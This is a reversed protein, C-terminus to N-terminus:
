PSGCPPVDPYYDPVAVDAPDTVESVMAARVLALGAIVPGFAGQGQTDLTALRSEHTSMLNIM